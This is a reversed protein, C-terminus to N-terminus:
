SLTSLKVFLIGWSGFCRYLDSPLWSDLWVEILCSRQTSACFYWTEGVLRIVSKVRKDFRVKRKTVWDEATNAIQKSLNRLLGSSKLRALHLWRAPLNVYTVYWWNVGPVRYIFCILLYVRGANIFCFWTRCGVMVVSFTIWERRRTLARWCCDCLRFGSAAESCLLCALQYVYIWVLNM